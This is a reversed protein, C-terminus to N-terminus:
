QTRSACIPVFLYFDIVVTNARYDESVHCFHRADTTVTLQSAGEFGRPSMIRISDSPVVLLGLVYM